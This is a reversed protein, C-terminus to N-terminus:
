RRLTPCGAAGCDDRGRESYSSQIDRVFAAEEKGAGNEPLLRGGSALNVRSPLSASLCGRDLDLAPLRARPALPLRVMLTVAPVPVVSRSRAAATSCALSAPLQVRAAGTKYGCWHLQSLANMAIPQACRSTRRAMVSSSLRNAACHAVPM